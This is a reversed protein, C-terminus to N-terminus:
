MNCSLSLILFLKVQRGRVHEKERERKRNSDSMSCLSAFAVLFISVDSINILISTGADALSKRRRIQKMLNSFEDKLDIRRMEYTERDGLSDCDLLENISNLEMQILHLRENLESISASAIWSAAISRSPSLQAISSSPSIVISQKRSTMPSTSVPGPYMTGGPSTRGTTATMYAAVGKGSGIPAEIIVHHPRKKARVEGPVRRKSLLDALLNIHKKFLKGITKACPLLISTTSIAIYLHQNYSTVNFTIPVSPPPSMWYFIKNLKHSGVTIDISPGQLNSVCISSNRYIMNLIFNSVCNPLLNYLFYHVGYMVAPDASAKLEEM